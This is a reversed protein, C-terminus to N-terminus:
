SGLFSGAGSRRCAGARRSPLSQLQGPCARSAWCSSARSNFGSRGQFAALVSVAAEPTTTGLSVVTAGVVARPVGWRVSVAVANAVLWDAGKALMVLAVVITAVLVPWPWVIVLNDLREIMRQLPRPTVLSGSTKQRNLGGYAWNGRSLGSTSHSDSVIEHRRSRQVWPPGCRAIEALSRAGLPFEVPM